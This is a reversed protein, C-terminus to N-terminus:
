LMAQVGFSSLSGLALGLIMCSGGLTAAVDVDERRGGLRPNHELSSVALLAVASVYGTTYGMTLMIIMFLIDSHIISPVPTTASREVNCLLLLPIFLTRLLSLVLIKRGSWVVLRPFSCSSQGIFGGINVVLFHVATFLLPHISPDVPRVRATIAPYVALTVVFVYAISFMFILNKGFVRYVHSNSDTSAIRRQDAILGIREDPTGDGPHHNMAGTVPKHFPQRMLRTYVVLTICLFVASVGFFIRAATEETRDNARMAVTSVSKPSSGWIAIVSSAVQVSSVVVGIAAQGSLMFQLASAGLLAAQAYVATCLYSAAIAISAANFLVFAFFTSPTGRIFTSLCLSTIVFTMATISLSIRRSSSSQKSTLTCYFQCVLKTLTYVSSLYSTFTSYFPSGALRSLFFPTANFLANFPLLIACGLLFYTWRTRAAAPIHEITSYPEDGSVGAESAHDNSHYAQDASSSVARYKAPLDTM